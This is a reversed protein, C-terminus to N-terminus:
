AGNFVTRVYANILNKSVRGWHLDSEVRKRGFEGMKKRLEEDDMLRVTARAFEVVDNPAVYIAAERATFRTEKLEFSVIPKGMAMYEMVKIWTSVDNLPSSPDPDLCIDAMSLYRVLDEDPIIGTFHVYENIGLESALRKLDLLSDGSGILICYFDTRKMEFVMHQLARLLYDIGDQPNMAGLYVLITKDRERNADNDSVRRLRNLDPGNRVVFVKDKPIRGRQIEIQRYSENTAIVLNSIRLSLKELLCLTRYIFGGERGYRSLYLEPSLDHHDFVFRKGLLRYFGGIIFLTDPPNHTHVVDFGDKFLIYFSLLFCIATFYGYEFVYGAISKIRNAYKTLISIEKANTKKFLSIRPVRYVHIGGIEEASKEGKAKMAIIVVKYGYESLTIAENRVRTDLPFRNEVIMLIKGASEKM